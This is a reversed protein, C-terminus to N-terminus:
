DSKVIFSHLLFANSLKGKKRLKRVEMMMVHLVHDIYKQNYLIYDKKPDGTESIIETYVLICKKAEFFTMLGAIM